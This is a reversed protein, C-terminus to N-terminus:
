GPNPPATFQPNDSHHRSDEVQDSIVTHAIPCSATTVTSRPLKQFYKTLLIQDGIRRTTTNTQYRAVLTLWQKKSRRSTSLRESLSISFLVRDSATFSEQISYLHQIKTDIPSDRVRQALESQAHLISNRHEWMTTYFQWLITIISRSWTQRLGQLTSRPYESHLALVWTHSLYGRMAQSLGIAAQELIAKSLLTILTTPLTYKKLILPTPSRGDSLWSALIDHLVTWTRSSGRKTVISSRLLAVANYRTRRAPLSPCLLIHDQDEPVYGCQPCSSSSQKHIKARQAGTNLWGHILKSINPQKTPAISKYAGGFSEFDISNWVQDKSWGPRTQQLFQRHRTGNIHFRIAAAPNATIQQGNVLLSVKSSTFFQPNSSSQNRQDMSNYYATALSDAMVNLRAPWVLAAYQM